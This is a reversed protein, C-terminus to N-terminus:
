QKFSIAHRLISPMSEAINYDLDTVDRTRNMECGSM